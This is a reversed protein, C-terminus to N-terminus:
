LVRLVEQWVREAVDDESADADVTVVGPVREAFRRYGDAVRRQFELGKDEIRDQADGRRSAAVDVDLDLLIVLDPRPRGAWSSLLELVADEDLEGAVGQYAFTSSNFRDTVVHHGSGLAPEVKERLMQARSACFLLAEVHASIDHDRSLLLERLSEGVSTGGPERLRLASQDTERELRAVLREAQTSKGCGDVGDLVFFRASQSRASRQADDSSPARDSNSDASM